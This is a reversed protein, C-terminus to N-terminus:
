RMDVAAIMLVGLTVLVLGTVEGRRVREKLYFHGVALTFLIEVQGLGRVLAVHTLAFGAFWCGSGLASLIGVPSARRWLRLCDRLEGPTRWAMYGGQVLTQALNTVLLVLTAKVAVHVSPGLDVSAARLALATLAFTFAAGLGCLAAPQLSARLWDRLGLKQGVLSLLLVGAVALFIGAVALPPLHVGLVVVSLVVLQVAETKAYATGVVFSRLGFVTILLITGFIQAVGGALCLLLFRWSVAPLTVQLWWLALMLMLVDLPLAYLYRVFGAGSASLVGRLKVQLATRWVQFVAAALTIPIWAPIGTM